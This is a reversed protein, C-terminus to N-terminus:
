LSLNEIIDTLFDIIWWSNTNQDVVSPRTDDMMWYKIVSKPKKIVEVKGWQMTLIIWLIGEVLSM